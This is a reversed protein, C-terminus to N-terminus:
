GQPAGGRARSGRISPGWFGGAELKNVRGALLSIKSGVAEIEEFAVQGSRIMKDPAVPTPNVQWYMGVALASAAAVGVSAWRLRRYLRRMRMTAMFRDRVRACALDVGRPPEFRGLIMEDDLRERSDPDINM